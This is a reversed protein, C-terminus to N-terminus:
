FSNYDNPINKLFKFFYKKFKPNKKFFTLLNYDIIQPYIFCKELNDSILKSFFLYQYDFKSSFIQTNLLNLLYFHKNVNNITYNFLNLFDTLNVFKKL